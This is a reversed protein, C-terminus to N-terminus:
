SVMTLFIICQNILNGVERLNVESERVLEVIGVKLQDRIISDYERLLQPSKLLKHQLYRLRNISLVFHDPIDPHSEKWPLAVEYCNCNFQLQELFTDPKKDGDKDIIGLSETDWFRHLISALTDDENL